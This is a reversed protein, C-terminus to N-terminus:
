RCYPGSRYRATDFHFHNRHHRDANPGLVTGFPGCAASHMKRLAKGDTGTNWGELVSVRTGDRLVVGGIDIAHGKAHESLKAGRRNNRTRCAYSAMVHLESIGGGRKDIAPKAGKEMWRHLANATTCDMRAPTSLTVGGVSLVRVPKAIGCAGGSGIPDIREGLIAPNGCIAGGPLDRDPADGGGCGALFLGAIVMFRKM